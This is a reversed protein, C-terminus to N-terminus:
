HLCEEGNIRKFKSGTDVDGVGIFRQVNIELQRYCSNFKISFFHGDGEEFFEFIQKIAIAYAGWEM